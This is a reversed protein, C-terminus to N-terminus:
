QYVKLMVLTKAASDDDVPVAIYTGTSNFALKNAAETNKTFSDKFILKECDTDFEYLRVIEQSAPATYDLGLAIHKDNHLAIGTSGDVGGISLSDKLTLTTTGSNWSFVYVDKSTAAAGSICLYSDDSFWCPTIGNGGSMNYTEVSTLTDTGNWSYIVLQNSAKPGAVALYNGDNSWACSYEASGTNISEVEALTDSGNWSYVIISKSTNWTTVALYDGDPHWAPFEAGGTVAATEVSTLTDSGNWSYVVVSNTSDNYECIALYNGNISWALNYITAGVNVTEVEALTDSGNWSYIIIQKNTMNGAVAIYNGNPSFRAIFGDGSSGVDEVNTLDFIDSVQSLGTNDVRITKAYTATRVVGSALYKNDPSLSTKYLGKGNWTLSSSETLTKASSDWTYAYLYKLSADSNGYNTAFLTGGEKSLVLGICQSPTLSVTDRETLNTGDFEYAIITKTADTGSFFVFNDDLSWEIGQSWATLTKTDKLTLTDTGNWEYVQMKTVGCSALYKGCHSWECNYPNEGVNYTEVSALTDVGNWSYVELQASATYKGVALYNGNPHWSLGYTTDTNITEVSTLTDTGNWSYIRIENTTSTLTAALFNGNASWEVNTVQIGTAVTEVPSLTSGNWSYVTIEDSGGAHHGLAVFTGDPHWDTDCGGEGTDVSTNTSLSATGEGGQVISSYIGAAITLFGM